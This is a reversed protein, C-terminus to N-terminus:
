QASGGTLTCRGGPLGERQANPIQHFAKERVCSPKATAPPSWRPSILLHLGTPVRVTCFLSWQALTNTARQHSPPSGLPPDQESHAGGNQQVVAAAPFCLSQMRSWGEQGRRGPSRGATDSRVACLLLSPAEGIARGVLPRNRHAIGSVPARRTRAWVLM